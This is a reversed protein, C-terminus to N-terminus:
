SVQFEVHVPDHDSVRQNSTSPLLRNWMKPTFEYSRYLIHDIRGSPIKPLNYLYTSSNAEHAGPHSDSWGDTMLLAYNADQENFNLDGILFLSPINEAFVAFKKRCLDVMANTCRHDIHTNFIIFEKRSPIHHLHAWLVVRPATNGFGISPIDPTPSLWWHGTSLLDFTDNRYFLIIEHSSPIQPLGFKEYKAQWATLLDPTPNIIPVTLATFESFQTQLFQFQRPMVEQLGIIDPQAKRLVDVYPLKREDWTPVGPPSLFDASINSTIIGLNMNKEFLIMGIKSFGGLLHRQSRSPLSLNPFPFYGFSLFFSL